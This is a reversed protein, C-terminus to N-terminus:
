RGSRPGPEAALDYVQTLALVFEGGERRVSLADVSRRMIHVGYGSERLMAVDPVPVEEPVFGPGHDRVEVTLRDAEVLVAVRLTPHPRDKEGHRIANVCAEQMALQLGCIARESLRVDKVNVAVARLMERLARLHRPNGPVVIEFRDGTM